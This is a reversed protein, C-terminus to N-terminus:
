PSSQLDRVAMGTLYSSGGGGLIGLGQTGPGLRQDSASIRAIQALGRATELLRADLRWGASDLDARLVLRYHGARVPLPESEALVEFSDPQPGTFYILALRGRWLAAEYLRHPPEPQVAAQVGISGQGDWWGDLTIEVSGTPTDTARWAYDDGGDREWGGEPDGIAGRPDVLVNGFLRRWRPDYDVLPRTTASEFTEIWGRAQTTDFVSRIAASRGARDAQVRSLRARQYLLAAIIAAAVAIAVVVRSM